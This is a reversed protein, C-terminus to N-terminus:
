RSSAPGSQEVIAWKRPTPASRRAEYDTSKTRPSDIAGILGARRRGAARRLRRAPNPQLAPRDANETKAPKAACGDRATLAKSLSGISYVTDGDPTPGDPLRTKGYGRVYALNGAKVVGITASPASDARLMQLTMADIQLQVPRPMSGAEGPAAHAFRAVAAASAIGAAAALFARRSPTSQSDKKM